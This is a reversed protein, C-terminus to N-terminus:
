PVLGKFYLTSVGADKSAAWAARVRNESGMNKEHTWIKPARFGTMMRSSKWSPQERLEYQMDAVDLITKGDRVVRLSFWAEGGGTGIGKDKVIATLVDGKVIPFTGSEVRRLNNGSLIQRGNLFLTYEDDACAFVELGPPTGPAPPIAGPVRPLVTTPITPTASPATEEMPEDPPVATGFPNGAITATPRATPADKKVLLGFEHILTEAKGLVGHVPRTDTRVTRVLATSEGGAWAATYRENPDLADNQYRFFTVRFAELDDGAKIEITGVAFGPRAELVTGPTGPPRLGRLTGRAKGASRMYLPTISQIASGQGARTTYEFGILVGQDPGLDRFPRGLPKTGGVVATRLLPGDVYFVPAELDLPGGIILPPLAPNRPAPAPTAPAPPAPTATAPLPATPAPTAAAPKPVVAKDPVGFFDAAQVVSPAALAVAGLISVIVKMMPTPIGCCARAALLPATFSKNRPIGDRQSRKM